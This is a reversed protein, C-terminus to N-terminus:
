FQLRLSLGYTRPDNLVIFNQGIIDLDFLDFLRQKVTEDGVNRGWVSVRWRGNAAVLGAQLNFLEYAGVRGNEQDNFTLYREGRALVEGGVFWEMGGTLPVRYEANLSLTREPAFPVRNLPRGDPLSGEDYQAELLSANLRVTLHDGLRSLLEVEIGTSHAERLSLPSLKEDGFNGYNLGPACLAVDQIDAIAARDIM